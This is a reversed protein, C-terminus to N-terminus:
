RDDTYWYRQALSTRASRPIVTTFYHWDGHRDFKRMSAM